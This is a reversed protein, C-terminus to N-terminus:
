SIMYQEYTLISIEGNQIDVWFRDYSTEFVIEEGNKLGIVVIAIGVIALTYSNPEYTNRVKPLEKFDFLTLVRSKNFEFFCRKRTNQLNIDIYEIYDELINKEKGYIETSANLLDILVLIGDKEM